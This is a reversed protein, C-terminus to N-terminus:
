KTNGVVIYDFVDISRYVSARDILKNTRRIVDQMTLPQKSESLVDFTVKRPRTLSYGKEKLKKTLLDLPETM